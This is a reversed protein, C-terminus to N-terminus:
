IMLSVGAREKEAQISGRLCSVGEPSSNSCLIIDTHTQVPWTNHPSLDAAQKKNEVLVVSYTHVTAVHTCSKNIGVGSITHKFNM